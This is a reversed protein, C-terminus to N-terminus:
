EEGRERRKRGERREREMKGGRDRKKEEGERRRRIEGREKGERKGYVKVILCRLNQRRRRDDTKVDM